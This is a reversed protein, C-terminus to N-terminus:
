PRILKTTITEARKRAEEQQLANATEDCEVLTAKLLHYIPREIKESTKKITLAVHMPIETHHSKGYSTIQETSIGSTSPIPMAVVAGPPFKRML